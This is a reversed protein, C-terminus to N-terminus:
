SDIRVKGLEKCVALFGMSLALAFAPHWIAPDDAAVGVVSVMSAVAGISLLPTTPVKSRRCVPLWALTVVVAALWNWTAAAAITCAILALSAVAVVGRRLPSTTLDPRFRVLKSLAETSRAIMRITPMHLREQWPDTGDILAATVLFAFTYTAISTATDEWGAFWALASATMTALPLAYIARQPPRAIVTVIWLVLAALLATM